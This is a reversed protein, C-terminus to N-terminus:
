AATNAPLVRGAWKKPRSTILPSSDSRRKKSLGPTTTPRIALPLARLLGPENTTGRWNTAAHVPMCSEPGHRRGRIRGIAFREARWASTVTAASDGACLGIAVNGVLRACEIAPWTSRPIRAVSAHATTRMIAHVHALCAAVMAVASSYIVALRIRSRM